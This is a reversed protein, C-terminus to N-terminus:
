PIHYKEATASFILVNGTSPLEIESCGDVPISVLYMYSFVYAKNREAPNHTHTGVYAVDETRLCSDYYGEWGYVGYFGSYHAVSADVTRDGVKFQATVPEETAAVLLHLTGTGEPLSIKQGKCLVADKYNAEGFTFPIGRYELKEPLLEAAFSERNDGIQGQSTFSDTTIAVTNFPLDLSRYDPRVIQVTPEAFHIRYTKLAFKGSEVNLSNGKFSAVGKSDEIGNVEEADTIGAAFDIKGAAGRGSLEYVRLIYGNGDQAKKFAKIRLAPNSSSAISFTRGLKGSHKGVALAIQPQNLKD